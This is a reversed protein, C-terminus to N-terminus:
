DGSGARGRLWPREDGPPEWSAIPAQLPEDIWCFEGNTGAAADSTLRLILSVAKGPPDGGTEAVWEAWARYPDAAPGLAAV